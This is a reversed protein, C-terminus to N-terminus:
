PGASAPEGAARGLRRRARRRRRSRRQTSGAAPETVGFAQLRLRGSAQPQLYRRKQEESGHRFNTGMIYVPRPVRGREAPRTSRELIVSAPPADLPRAATSRRRARSGGDRTLASSRRRLPGARAGGYDGSAVCIRAGRGPRTWSARPRSTWSLETASRGAGRM